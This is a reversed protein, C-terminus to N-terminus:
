KKNLTKKVFNIAAVLKPIGGPPLDKLNQQLFSAMQDEPLFEEAYLVLFFTARNVGGYGPVSQYATIISQRKQPDALSTKVSQYESYIITFAHHLDVFEKVVVHKDSSTLKQGLGILVQKLKNFLETIEKLKEDVTKIGKDISAYAKELKGKLEEVKSKKQALEVFSVIVDFVGLAVEIVASIEPFGLATVAGSIVSGVKDIISAIEQLALPEFTVSPTNFVHVTTLMMARQKFFAVFDGLETVVDLEGDYTKLDSVFKPPLNDDKKIVKITDDIEGNLSQKLIEVTGLTFIDDVGFGAKMKPLTNNMLNKTSTIFKELGKISEQIKEHNSPM